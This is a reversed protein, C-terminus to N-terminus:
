SRETLAARVAVEAATALAKRSAFDAAVLPPHYIVTVSGHRPAALMALMHPGFAMDGWWGYFRPDVGEPARWLVTVPQVHLGARLGLGLAPDLFAEFLSSKFPLVRQGDTSTGEPFFLLRDGAAIRDRFAAVHAQAQRKDRAIFVTGAARALLGIGPWGAVESKAVFCVRGGANLAFIDLWSAHNAVVAGAGRLPLGRRRYRIGIVALAARSVGRVVQPSVMRRRGVVLREVARVVGLVVLGAGLLLM